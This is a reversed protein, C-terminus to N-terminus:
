VNPLLAKELDVGIMKGMDRVLTRLQNKEAPLSLVHSFRPERWKEVMKTVCARVWDKYPQPNNENLYLPDNRRPLYIGNNKVIAHIVRVMKRAVHIKPDKGESEKKLHFERLPHTGGMIELGHCFSDYRGCSKASNVLINKLHHNCKKSKHGVKEPKDRGGSQKSDPVLGCYSAIQTEKGWFDPPGLEALVSAASVVGFGVISTIGVGMTQVLLSAMVQEEHLSCEDISRLLSVQLKLRKKWQLLESPSLTCLSKDALEKYKRAKDEPERAKAKKMQAIIKKLSLRRFDAASFCDLEFVRLATLDITSFPMAKAIFGPFLRNLIEHMHNRVRTANKVLLERHRVANKLGKYLPVNKLLYLHASLAAEAIGNLDLEDSSTRANPRLDKAKWANVSSCRWKRRSNIFNAMNEAYSGCDEITFIARDADLKHKKCVRDVEVELKNMGPEDNGIFIAKPLLVEGSDASLMQVAHEKKACDLVVLVAKDFFDIERKHKKKPNRVKSM